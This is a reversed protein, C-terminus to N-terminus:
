ISAGQDPTGRLHVQASFTFRPVDSLPDPLDIPGGLEDVRYFAVGDHTTGPLANILARCLQALDHADEATPAWCEVILIPSDSVITHRVGGGLRVTVFTDPRPHPVDKFASAAESRTALEDTLYGIVLEPADPFLIVQTM